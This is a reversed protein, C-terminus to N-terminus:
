AMPLMFMRVVCFLLVLLAVAVVVARLEEWDFRSALGALLLSGALIVATLTFQDGTSGAREGETSAM